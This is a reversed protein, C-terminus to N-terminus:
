PSLVRIILKFISLVAPNLTDTPGHSPSRDLWVWQRIGLTSAAATGAASSM